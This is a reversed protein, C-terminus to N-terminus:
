SYSFVLKGRCKSCVYKDTNIKKKRPYKQGCKKCTYIYKPKDLIMPAYRSGGVQKLLDKFEKTAHKGSYGQRSLHYHVLEHKIVGILTEKSIELMKPNIDINHSNLHYRGGTTKLRRNFYAQHRFPEHFYDISIQEVLRQLEINEM